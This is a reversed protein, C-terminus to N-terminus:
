SPKWLNLLFLTRREIEIPASDDSECLGRFPFRNARIPDSSFISLTFVVAEAVRADDREYRGGTRKLTPLAYQATPLIRYKRFGERRLKERPVRIRRPLMSHYQLGIGTLVSPHHHRARQSRARRCESPCDFGSLRQAYHARRCRLTGALRSRNRFVDRISRGSRGERNRPRVYGSRRRYGRPVPFPRVIIERASM